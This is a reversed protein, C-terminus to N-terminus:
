SVTHYSPIVFLFPGLLCLPRNSTLPFIEDLSRNIRNLGGEGFSRKGRFALVATEGTLPSQLRVSTM